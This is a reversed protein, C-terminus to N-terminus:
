GCRDEGWEPSAFLPSLTRDRNALPFRRANDTTHLRCAPQRTSIGKLDARLAYLLSIDILFARKPKARIM